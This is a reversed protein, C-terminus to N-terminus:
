KLWLSNPYYEKLIKFVKQAEGYANHRVYVDSLAALAHEPKSVRNSETLAENILDMGLNPFEEVCFVGALFKRDALKVPMYLPYLFDEILKATAPELKDKMPKYVKYANDRKDIAINYLIDGPIDKWGKCNILNQVSGKGDVMEKIALLFTIRDHTIVPRYGNDYPFYSVARNRLGSIREYYGNKLIDREDFYAFTKEIDSKVKLDPEADLNSLVSDAKDLDKFSYIYTYRLDMVARYLDEKSYKNKNKIVRFANRMKAVDTVESKVVRKLGLWESVIHLKDDVYTGKRPGTVLESWTFREYAKATNAFCLCSSILGLILASKKFSNSKM